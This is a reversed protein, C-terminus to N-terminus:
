NSFIIYEDSLYTDSEVLDCRHSLGFYLGQFTKKKKFNNSNTVSKTVSTEANHVKKLALQRREPERSASGSM